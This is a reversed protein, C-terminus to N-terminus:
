TKHGHQWINSVPPFRLVWCLYGEPGCAHIDFEGRADQAALAPAIRARWGSVRAALESQVEAAAAEAIFADIHARCLDEYSAGEAAAGGGSPEGM